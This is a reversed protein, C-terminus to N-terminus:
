TFGIVISARQLWGAVGDLGASGNVGVIAAVLFGFMGLGSATSYVM